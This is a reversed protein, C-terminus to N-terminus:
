IEKKSNSEYSFWQRLFKQTKQTKLQVFFVLGLLSSIGIGYSFAVYFFHHSQM